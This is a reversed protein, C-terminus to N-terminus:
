GAVVEVVMVGVWPFGRYIEMWEVSRVVMKSAM